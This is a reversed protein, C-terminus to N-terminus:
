GSEWGFLGKEFGFCCKFDKGIVRTRSQSGVDLARFIM